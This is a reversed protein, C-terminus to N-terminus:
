IFNTTEIVKGNADLRINIDSFGQVIEGLKCYVWQRSASYNSANDNVPDFDSTLTANTYLQEGIIIIDGETSNVAAPNLYLTTYDANSNESTPSTNFASVDIEIIFNCNEITLTDFSLLEGSSSMEIFGYMGSPVVFKTLNDTNPVKYLIYFGGVGSGSFPTTLEADEYVIQGLTNTNPSLPFYLVETAEVACFNNSNSIPNVNTNFIISATAEEPIARNQRYIHSKFSNM